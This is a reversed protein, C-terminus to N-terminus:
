PNNRKDVKDSKEQGVDEGSSLERLKRAALWRPVWIRAYRRNSSATDAKLANM